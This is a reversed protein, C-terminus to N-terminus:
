CPLCPPFLPFYKAYMMYSWLYGAYIFCLMTSLYSLRSRDVLDCISIGFGDGEKGLWSETDAELIMQSYRLASWFFAEQNGASRKTAESIMPMWDGCESVLFGSTPLVCSQRNLTNPKQKCFYETDNNGFWISMNKWCPLVATQCFIRYKKGAEMM